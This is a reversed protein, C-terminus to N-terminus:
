DTVETDAPVPSGSAALRPALGLFALATAVGLAALGGLFLWPWADARAHVVLLRHAVLGFAAYTAGLTWFVPAFRTVAADPNAGDADPLVIRGARVAHVDHWWGGFAVSGACLLVVAAAEGLSGPAVLLGLWLVFALKSAYIFGHHVYIGGVRPGSAFRWRRLGSVGLLPMVYGFVLPVGLTVLAFAWGGDAAFRWALFPFMVAPFAYTSAFLLADRTRHTGVM